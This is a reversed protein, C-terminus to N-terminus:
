ESEAEPILETGLYTAGTPHGPPEGVLVLHDDLWKWALGMMRKDEPEVVVLQGDRFKYVGNFNNARSRILWRGEGLSTLTTPQEFGAPLNATWAGALDPGFRNRQSVRGGLYAAVVLTLILLSRLSFRGWRFRKEPTTEPEM